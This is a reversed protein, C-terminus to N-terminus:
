VMTLPALTGATRELYRAAQALTAETRLLASQTRLLDARRRRQVRRSEDPLRELSLGVRLSGDFTQEAFRSVVRPTERTQRSSSTPM